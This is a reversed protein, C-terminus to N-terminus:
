RGGVTLVKSWRGLQEAKAFHSQYIDWCHQNLQRRAATAAALVRLQEAVESANKSHLHWGVGLGTVWRAISCDASGVFLVPRGIALAGFFKSPVVTGTWNECLSVLHIDGAGLRLQLESEDAFDAFRIAHDQGVLADQLQQLRQGRGAFCFSISDDKVLKALLVFQEYDHARGLNGSYLCSLRCDGFLERRVDADAEVVKAPESLAWPTITEFGREPASPLASDAQLLARMCPGLDVIVDCRRYARALAWKLARTTWSNPNIAGEAISAQPHLDHCWHIISTRPRLVRWPIAALIALIPDTGIIVAETTARRHVLARWSWMAIMTAANLIRGLNSSQKFAPRWVRKITVSHWQERLLLPGDGHCLRAAPMATVKWGQAAMAEALDSFLRASVVDDPHFFHYLLILQPQQM